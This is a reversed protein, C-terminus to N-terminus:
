NTAAAVAHWDQAEQGPLDGAARARSGAASGATMGRWAAEARSDATGHKVQATRGVGVSESESLGLLGSRYM